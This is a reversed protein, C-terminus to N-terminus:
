LQEGEECEHGEYLAMAWESARRFEAGCKYCEEFDRGNM